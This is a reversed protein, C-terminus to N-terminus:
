LGGLIKFNRRDRKDTKWSFMKEGQWYALENEEMIGKMKNKADEHETKARNKIEKTDLLSKILEYHSENLHIETPESDPYMNHLLQTDEASFAPPVKKLVHNEWFDKEITILNEILQENREMVRWQFDWGGIFVGMYWRDAGLIAMYHNAQLQYHVPIKEQAWDDRNYESTNKIELGANEGIVWRDINALMFPHEKHQFISHQQMVRKGTDEKFIEAITPELKRGAKMQPNDEIPPMEGLKDLYVNMPSSYKSFGCIAAVDSGGIGQRRWDLWDQHEMDKTSVLRFAKM